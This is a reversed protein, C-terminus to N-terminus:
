GSPAGTEMDVTLLSLPIPRAPPRTTMMKIEEPKAGFERVLIAALVPTCNTGQCYGMGTRTRKKIDNLNMTGQRIANRIEGATTGECRCVITEDSINAYLDPYIQYLDDMARRFKRLSNLPRRVAQAAKAAQETTILGAHATAYLGAIMGEKRAVLVGAIGAGDGAVFVGSQDTQLNEDCYPVWGGIMPNYIHRCGLMSTLWVTPILGYGMCVTDVDFARTYSPILRCRSDVKGLVARRAEQDGEIAQLVHSNLMQVGARKLRRIYKLGQRILGPQRMLDPFYQWASRTSATEAVAVVQMGVDLMQNAVVLQLPGSGALLVRQGPRVRQSKIFVQAGGATMVGPLTWGPVPVPRESAGTAAVIATADLLVLDDGRAIALQRNDFVSWLLADNWITIRDSLKGVQKLLAQGDAYDDGFGAAHSVQFTPPIQRYIQGGAQLNEDIVLVHAGMEAAVIAASLGAPGGGIVAVEIKRHILGAPPPEPLNMDFQGLGAQLAVNQGAKVPEVCARVNPQGDVTVLCSHCQGIGCYLGRPDRHPHAQRIKRIGTAALVAGITEGEYARVPQRNVFIEIAQGRTIGTEIRYTNTVQDDSKEDMKNGMPNIRLGISASPM